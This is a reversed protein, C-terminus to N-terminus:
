YKHKNQNNGKKRRLFEAWPSSAEEQEVSALVEKNEPQLEIHEEPKRVLELLKDFV